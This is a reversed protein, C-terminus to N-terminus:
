EADPLKIHRAARVMDRDGSGPCVFQGNTGPGHTCLRGDKDISVQRGCRRCRRTKTKREETM